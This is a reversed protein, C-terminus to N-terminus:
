IVEGGKPFLRDLAELGFSLGPPIEPFATEVV